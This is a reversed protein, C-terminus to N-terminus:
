WQFPLVQCRTGVGSGAPGACPLSSAATAARAAVSTHAPPPSPAYGSADSTSCQFPLVQVCTAAGLMPASSATVTVEALTQTALTLLTSCNLPDAQVESGPLAPLSTWASGNFQEVKNVSAVWVNASTVTVADLAGISPVQVQTWTSGNWHLVLSAQPYAGDGGAAWVDNSARAAVAALENGQAPGAPDPTPVRQWTSGNWHYALTQSALSSPDSVTGVAWGDGAAAEAVGNLRAAQGSYVSGLSVTTATWGRGNWHEAYPRTLLATPPEGPNYGGVALVDSSSSASVGFLNALSGAPASTTTGWAVTASAAFAASAGLGASCAVAAAMAARWARKLSM